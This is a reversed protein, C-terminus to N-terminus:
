RLSAIWIQAHSKIGTEMTGEQTAGAILM